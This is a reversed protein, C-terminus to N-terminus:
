SFHAALAKASARSFGPVTVVSGSSTIQTSLPAAAIQGGAAVVIVDPVGRQKAGLSVNRVFARWRTVASPRLTLQVFWGKHKSYAFKASAVDTAALRSRKSFALWGSGFRCWAACHVATGKGALAHLPKVDVDGYVNRSVHSLDTQLDWLGFGPAAAGAAAPVALAALCLLLVLRRM